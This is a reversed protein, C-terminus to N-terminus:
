LVHGPSKVLYVVVTVLEWLFRHNLTKMKQRLPKVKMCRPDGTCSLKEDPIGDMDQDNGCM